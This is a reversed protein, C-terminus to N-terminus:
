RLKKLQQVRRVTVGLMQAIKGSDREAMAEMAALHSGKKFAAIYVRSAGFHRRISLIIGEWAADPVNPNDRRAQDIIEGLNDAVV